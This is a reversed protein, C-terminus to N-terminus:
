LCNMICIILGITISNKNFHLYNLCVLFIPNLEISQTPENPLVDFCLAPYRPVCFDQMFLANKWQIKITDLVYQGVTMVTWPVTFTNGGPSISQSGIDLVQSDYKGEIIDSNQKLTYDKMNILTIKLEDVQITSPLNSTIVLKTLVEEGVHCIHRFAKKQLVNSLESIEGGKTPHIAIDTGLLPSLGWTHGVVEQSEVITHLDTAFLDMLKPPISSATNPSFCTTLSRLYQAVNGCIRQCSMLRFLRWSLLSEWEEAMTLDMTPLLKQTAKDFENRLIHCEAQETLIRTACRNRNIAFNLRIIISSIEFFVNEYEQSSIVIKGTWPSWYDNEMVLCAVIIKDPETIQYDMINSSKSGGLDNLPKWLKKTNKPCNNHARRVNNSSTYLLNGLKYLRMMTFNLLDLLSCVMQNENDESRLSEMNSYLNFSLVSSSSKIMEWCCAMTWMEIKAKAVNSLHESQNCRILNVKRIYETFRYILLTPDKLFFILRAQRKFLYIFTHYSLQCINDISRVIDRFASTDESSIAAHLLENTQGSSESEDPWSTMPLKDELDEYEKLAELPLQLQEYTLALSEKILFYRPRDFSDEDNEEQSKRIENNYKQVRDTFGSVMTRGLTQLIEGFEQTQIQNKPVVTNENDLLSSLLCTKANPFDNCFKNFIEKQEKTVQRTISPNLQHDHTSVSPEDDLAWENSSGPKVSHGDDSTRRGGFRMRFGGLGGKNGEEGPTPGIEVCSPNVPVYIIMYKSSANTNAADKAKAAALSAAAVQEKKVQRSKDKAKDKQHFEKRMAQKAASSAVEKNGSGAGDVQSVFARLFPRVKARYHDLSACAAIYVHCLPGRHWDSPDSVFPTDLQANFPINEIVEINNTRLNKCRVSQISSGHHTELIHNISKFLNLRHFPVRRNTQDDTPIASGAKSTPDIFQITPYQRLRQSFEHSNSRKVKNPSRKDKAREQNQNCHQIYDFGSRLYLYQQTYHEQPDNEYVANVDSNSESAAHAEYSQRLLALKRDRDTRSPSLSQRKEVRPEVVADPDQDDFEADSDRDRDYDESGNDVSLGNNTDFTSGDVNTAGDQTNLDQYDTGGKIKGIYDNVRGLEVGNGEEGYKYDDPSTSDKGSRIENALRELEKKSRLKEEELQQQLESKRINFFDAEADTIRLGDGGEFLADLCSDTSKDNINNNSSRASNTSINNDNRYKSSGTSSFSVNLKNRHKKRKGGHDYSVKGDGDDDINDNRSDHLSNENKFDNNLSDEVGGNNNSSSSNPDKQQGNYFSDSHSIDQITADVFDAIETTSDNDDDVFSSNSYQPFEDAEGHSILDNDNINM